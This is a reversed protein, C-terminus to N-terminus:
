RDIKSGLPVYEDENGWEEGVFAEIYGEVVINYSRYGVLDCEHLKDFLRIASDEGM